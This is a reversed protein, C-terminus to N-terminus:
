IYFPLHIIIERVIYGEGHSFCESKLSLHASQQWFTCHRLSFSESLALMPFSSHPVSPSSACSNGAAAALDSWDHRIRHSGISLLGGPEETKNELCSCQLPNGNGEGLEKRIDVNFILYLYERLCDPPDSSHLSFNAHTLFDHKILVLVCVNSFVRISPPNAPLLLLPRCLILHSSPMVSKVSM